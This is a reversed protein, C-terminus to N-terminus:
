AKEEKASEAESDEASQEESAVEAEKGIPGEYKIDGKAPDYYRVEGDVPRGDLDCVGEFYPVDDGDNLVAKVSAIAVELQKFTPEKTTLKQLYLGPLSLIEVVINNSRGAWKLLEYSIGAIVPLVLIRTVM